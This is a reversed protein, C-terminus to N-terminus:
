PALRMITKASVGYAQALISLPEDCSRRQKLPRLAEVQRKGDNL